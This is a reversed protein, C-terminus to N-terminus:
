SSSCMELVIIIYFFKVDICIYIDLSLSVLDVLQAMIQKIELIIEKWKLEKRLLDISMLSIVQLILTMSAKHEVDM